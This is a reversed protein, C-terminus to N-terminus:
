QKKRTGLEPLPDPVRTERPLNDVNIGRERLVQVRHNGQAITGDPYTTLPSDSGPKLSDLIKDTSWKRIHELTSERLRHAHRLPPQTPKNPDDPNPNAPSSEGQINASTPNSENTKSMKQIFEEWYSQRIGKAERVPEPLNLGERYRGAPDLVDGLAAAAAAVPVGALAAAGPALLEATAGWSIEQSLWAAASAVNEVAGTIANLAVMQNTINGNADRRYGYLLNYETFGDELDGPFWRVEGTSKNIGWILGTPDTINIPNNGTYAYRNFTQPNTADASAMVPDPTTFRGHSFHYYRNQAFDLNVEDDREYTSFKQRVGDSSGYGRATTRWNSDAPIEEGFPFYDHRSGGAGNQSNANGQADTVVRTSGLHDQTLFRMGKAEALNSYEAVARGMADYVFVTVEGNYSAKKVRRGDGDYTYSTGGNDFGGGASKMKNEADYAYYPTLGSQGQTCLRGPECLLDGAADYRYDSQGPETVKVRNDAAAFVPNRTPDVPLGTAPDNPTQSYDPSTTGQAFNRNGYRDYVFVQKWTPTTASIQNNMEVASTLRNLDDYGYTQVYPQAMGPVTITQTRISGNNHTADTGYTYDLRLTSSDAASTGLGIQRPQLRSNFDTHEWLGNGLRVASPVGSAAYQIRNASDAAAGAYYLGTAQNKVGAVRGATDYEAKVVRGSPYKESILGGALNYQYDPMTYVVGDTTQESGTVRGLADYGTYRYTSVSSSVSALLGKGNPATDYAYTVNPTGDNYSRTKIRNLSDYKYCTAIRDGEYPISCASLTLSGPRPRPDLRLILNGNADYQYQVTSSEPNTASTLRSLSDNVFNRTQAGQTVQKLNGLTDYDYHTLYGNLNRGAFSVAVTASDAPKIEWVDTLQGLANTESVRRKGAQDTVMVKAGDYDTQVYSGDSTTVTHVRGLADYAATTTGYTPDSTTRYPNTVTAVRGLADYTWQTKIYATADEYSRSETTRGMGDYVVETKLLNDDYSTLDSTTRVTRISDLYEVTAQNAQDTGVARVSQKPRDLADQYTISSVVHNADESNVLAGTHYDYQRYTEQGESNLSYTPFAFSTLAVGAPTILEPPAVNGRAENMDNLTGFRDEYKIVTENGRGDIFKVVNGAVDYQTYMTVSGTVAGAASLLHRTIATVNGRKKYDAPAASSCEGTPNYTTCLGSINAREVLAAHYQVASYNDYEYATSSRSVDATSAGGDFVQQSVPLGRLHIAVSSYDEGNILHASDAYDTHTHRVLAGSQNDGYHYEYTDTLNNYLDYTFEQKAVRYQGPTATLMSMTTSKVFPSWARPGANVACEARSGLCGEVWQQEDRALVTDSNLALSETKYEKGDLMQSLGQLGSTFAVLSQTPLSHFYHDRRALVQNTGYDTRVERVDGDQGPARYRSYTTTLTPTTGGNPFESRKLLRRYIAIPPQTPNSTFSGVQGSPYTATYPDPNNPNPELGAGYEYEVAAGNPSDVRALEGYSNYSFTYARQDPLTVTSVVTPDYLDNRNAFSVTPHNAPFIQYIPGTSYGKGELLHSHLWDRAITITRSQNHAGTYHIEDSGSGYVISTVRNNSDVVKSLRVNGNGAPQYEFTMKNGNRDRLWQARSGAFRVVTGDNMKLYGSALEETFSPNSLDTKVYYQDSGPPPDAVFTYGSGDRASFVLGRATTPQWDYTNYPPQLQSPNGGTVEDYLPHETGDADTFVMVAEAVKYCTPAGDPDPSPCGPEASSYRMTVIGFEFPQLFAVRGLTLPEPYLYVASANNNFEHHTTWSADDIHLKMTYGAAGRGGVRLLPVVTNVKGSYLSLSELNSLVYAGAPSGSANAAPAVSSQAWAPGSLTLALVAAALMAYVARRSTRGQHSDFCTGDSLNTKVSM